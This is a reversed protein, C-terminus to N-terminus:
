EVLFHVMEGTEYIGDEDYVEKYVLHFDKVDTVDPDTNKYQGMLPYFTVMIYPDKAYVHFDVTRM